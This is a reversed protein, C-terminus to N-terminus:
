APQNRRHNDLPVAASVLTGHGPASTISIHGAIAGIRDRMNQLGLGQSPRTSDFGPGDDRVELRLEHAAVTLRITTKTNPGAHKAANQVAELCCYYFAAEIDPSFRHKTAETVMVSTTSRRAIDALAGALGLDSLVTPYIGQAIERLENVAEELEGGVKLLSAQLEPNQGALERATSLRLLAGILRQQAGDHLDRELRRREADSAKTLRANSEALAHLSRKWAAELEANQVALLAAAGAANLLEPDEALQADHVIAAAPRDDRDVRTLTQGPAPPKLAAYDSGAWDCSQDRWFGLRLGPDGLTKRLLEELQSFSPHDLSRQLLRRLTRGAYLETAILALLFGYWITGRAGAFTWQIASEVPKATPALGNPAFLFLARYTAQVLVFLLAIPGGIALARRRPPTGTAFRSVLVGATALPIAVLVAGQVDLLQPLWSPPSWIALGNAPCAARCGSISFSPGIHAVTVALFPTPLIVGLVVLGIILWEARGELRGSPFSLIVLSTMLYIASEAILGVAFLAPTTTSELIYPVGVLGLGILLLGLRNNPRRARWYLGVAIPGVIFDAKQAALWAPYALFRARLTIWLAAGGSVVAVIAVAYRWREGDLLRPSAGPWAIGRRAIRLREVVAGTQEVM